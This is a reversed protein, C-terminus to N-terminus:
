IWGKRGSTRPTTTRTEFRVSGNGPASSPASFERETPHFRWCSSVTERYAGSCAGASRGAGLAGTRPPPQRTRLRSLRVTKVHFTRKVGSLPGKPCAHFLDAKSGFRVDGVDRAILDAETQLRSNSHVGSRSEPTTVVARPTGTVTNERIRTPVSGPENGSPYKSAM